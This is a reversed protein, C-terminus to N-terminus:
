LSAHSGDCYPPNNTQKCTCIPATKAEESKFVVSRFESGRHAGDCWTQNASEGCACWAYNKGAELEEMKPKTGAVKGKAM